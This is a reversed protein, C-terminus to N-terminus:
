PKRGMVLYQAGLPVKCVWPEIWRLWSLLRPFIFLFDETVIEFGATHLLRRAELFSLPIADRDFSIRSMAWRTGPNWPNNEWLAFMGGPRLAGLVYQIAGAREALPIHHFVGNTFVLDVDGLASHDDPHSFATVDDGHRSTAIQLCKESVDVGLVRDVGFAERLLPTSTGIGCGFDMVLKRSPISAAARRATWAVRARAFYEPGEGFIGIGRNLAAQYEEAFSDFMPDLSRNSKM